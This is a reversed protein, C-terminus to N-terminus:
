RDSVARQEIAVVLLMEHREAFIQREGIKEITEAHRLEDMKGAAEVGAVPGLRRQM